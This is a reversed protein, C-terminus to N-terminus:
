ATRDVVLAGPKPQTPIGAAAYTTPTHAAVTGAIVQATADIFEMGRMALFYNSRALSRLEEGAGILSNRIEELRAATEPPALAIVRRLSMSPGTPYSKQGDEGLGPPPADPAWELLAERREMESQGLDELLSRQRALNENLGPVDGAVLLDREARCCEVLRALAGAEGTLAELLSEFPNTM